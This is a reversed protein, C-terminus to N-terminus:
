NDDDIYKKLLLELVKSMKVIIQLYNQTNIRIQEEMLNLSRRQMEMELNFNRRDQETMWEYEKKSQEMNPKKSQHDSNKVNNLQLSEYKRKKAAKVLKNM